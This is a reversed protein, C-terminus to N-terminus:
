VIAVVVARGPRGRGLFDARPRLLGRRGARTRPISLTARAHSEAASDRARILVRTSHSVLPLPLPLPRPRRRAAAPAAARTPAALAGLAIRGILLRGNRGGRRMHRRPRPLTRGVRATARGRLRRCVTLGCTARHSHFLPATPTRLAPNWIQLRTIPPTIPLFFPNSSLFSLTQCFM